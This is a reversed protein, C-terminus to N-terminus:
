ATVVPYGRELWDVIGGTVLRADRGERQLMSAVAASRIQDDCIVAIPRDAELEQSREWAEETPLHVSGDVHGNRFEFRERVDLVLYDAARDHLETVSLLPLSAVPEGAAEWAALGGDLLGVVHFGAAQLLGVATLAEADPEDHVVIAQGHPLILEARDALDARNFQMTVAGPVHAAAFASPPRLDLVIAGGAVAEKVQDPIM